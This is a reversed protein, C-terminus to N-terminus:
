LRLQEEFAVSLSRGEASRACDLHLVACRAIGKRRPALSLISPLIAAVSPFLQPPPLSYGNREDFRTIGRRLYGRAM